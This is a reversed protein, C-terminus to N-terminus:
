IYLDTEKKMHVSHCADTMKQVSQLKIQKLVSKHEPIESDFCNLIMTLRM